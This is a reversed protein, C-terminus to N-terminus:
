PRLSARRSRAEAGTAADRGLDALRAATTYASEAATRDGNREAVKGLALHTRARVWTRADGTLAETLHARAGSLDGRELRVIGSTYEWLAREGFARPRPDTAFRRTADALLSDASQAHKARLATSASELWLLRNRPYRTRLEELVRMAEEYRRERNYLLVLALKAETQADSPYRAAGELLALGRERGGGFGALYAVVRTPGWLTSVLYRYTGLILGADKRQPDLRIVHEHEDYARRAARFAAFIHGEITATYSARLGIVAGLQFHADPDRPRERVRAEALELARATHDRFARAWDPSPPPFSGAPAADGLFEDVSITGRAFTIELWQVTAVGRHAAIDDPAEALAQTFLAVAQDHDLNYAAEFARARLAQAHSTAEGQRPVWAVLSLTAALLASRM